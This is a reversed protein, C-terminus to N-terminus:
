KASLLGGVDELISSSEWQQEGVYSKFVNGKKDILISRPLVELGGVVKHYVSRGADMYVPFRVGRGALFRHVDKRRADLSIALIEFRDSDFRDYFANLSPIEHLCPKCWTAWFHLLIVQGRYSRIRERRGDLRTLVIRTDVQVDGKDEGIYKDIVNQFFYAEVQKIIVEVRTITKRSRRELEKWQEFRLKADATPSKALTIQAQMARLEIQELEELKEHLFRLREEYRQAWVLRPLLLLLGILLCSIVGYPTPLSLM